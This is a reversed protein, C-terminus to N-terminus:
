LSAKWLYAPILHFAACYVVAPGNWVHGPFALFESGAAMWPYPWCSDAMGSWLARGVSSAHSRLGRESFRSTWGFVVLGVASLLLHPSLCHFNCLLPPFPLCHLQCSINDLNELRTKLGQGLMSKTITLVITAVENRRDLSTYNRIM